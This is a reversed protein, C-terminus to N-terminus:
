KSVQAWVASFSEELSRLLCLDRLGPAYFADRIQSRIEEDQIGEARARKVESILDNTNQVIAELHKRVLDGTICGGYSFGIGSIELDKLRGISELSASVSANAGPAALRRGNYYGLTEDTILFRHPLVLYGMSHNRHGPSAVCRVTIDDDITITEGDVICKEFQLAKRFEAPSPLAGVQLGLSQRIEADRSIASLVFDDNALEAAMGAGGLVRLEPLKKRLLPLAGVRDADLHTILVRTVRRLSLGLRELREELSETHASAGPDTLTIEGNEAVIAYRSTAGLSVHHLRPYVEMSARIFMPADQLFFGREPM